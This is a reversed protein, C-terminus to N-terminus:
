DGTGTLMVPVPSVTNRPNIYLAASLDGTKAPHFTVKVECSGSPPISRGACNNIESFADSGGISISSYTVSANGNNTATVVQPASKTGVKQKGFNLSTPSVKIITGRGSLEIVQPKSSASDIITVLGAHLGASRPQFVVNIVCSAGAGLSGGCTTGKGLHFQGSVKASSIAVASASTNRLTVALPASSTRVLQVPFVVPTAPSFDVVGTNLMTTVGSPNGLLVLDPKHDGNFDGIVPGGPTLTSVFQPSRFTGDGNGLFEDLGTPISDMSVIDIKGDGNLDQVEVNGNEGTTAYFVAPQFTGDGDGLLVTVGNGLYGGIVLDLNGDRNFDAAAVSGPIKTLPYTLAPQLTGDGNGLLIWLDQNGGFYGVAAVDLRHDNNFDGVVLQHAGVTSNNDIPAQFTGDGNGLLLSIYPNNVVAIDLKHDGNFDGVAIFTGAGTTPSSKPPQFTGDGNGLYVSVTKSDPIVVLDLNGDNNFDGAAVFGFSGANNAPTKFTGDGNGLFVSLYNGVVVVDLKGDHNFDGVAASLGVGPLAITARTEFQALGPATIGAFSLSALAFSLIRHFRVPFRRTMAFRVVPMDLSPSPSETACNVVTKRENHCRVKGEV